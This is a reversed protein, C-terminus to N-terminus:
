TNTIQENQKKKLCFVAYSIRMLSQLESTHEESRPLTKGLADYGHHRAVEEIVDIETASDYRWSPIQVELEDGAPTTTFGIPDLLEAMREPSIESGLLKTVRSPRLRVPPREPLTGTALAVGDELPAGLLEAFRRM